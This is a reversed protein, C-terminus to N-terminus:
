SPSLSMPPTLRTLQDVGTMVAAMTGLPYQPMFVPASTPSPITGDATKLRAVFSARRGQHRIWRLQEMSQSGSPLLYQDVQGMGGATGEKWSEVGEKWEPQPHYSRFEAEVTRQIEERWKEMEPQNFM